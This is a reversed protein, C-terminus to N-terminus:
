LKRILLAMQDSLPGFNIEFQAIYILPRLLIMTAKTGIIIKLVARINMMVLGMLLGFRYIKEISYNTWGSKGLLTKIDSISYHRHIGQAIIENYNPNSKLKMALFLNFLWPFYRKLYFKQNAPDLFSFAGRHPTGLVFLGGHKLVRDVERLTSIENKVHELVESMVVADFFSNPFPIKEASAQQFNLHPHLRKAKAISNPNIDIGYYERSKKALYVADYGWACGVDLIREMGFPLWLYSQQVSSKETIQSNSM